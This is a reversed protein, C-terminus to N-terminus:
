RNLLEEWRAEVVMQPVRFLDALEELSMSDWSDPLLDESMLLRRAFISAQASLKDNPVHPLGAARGGQSTCIGTFLARAMAYRRERESIGLNVFVKGKGDPLRIWLADGFPLGEVLNLDGALDLPPSRLIDRIPVPPSEIGYYELLTAVISDCLFELSPQPM